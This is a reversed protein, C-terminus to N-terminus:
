DHCQLDANIGGKIVRLKHCRDRHRYTMTRSRCRPQCYFKRKHTSAFLNSCKPAKCQRLSNPPLNWICECALNILYPVRIGDLIIYNMPKTEVHNDFVNITIPPLWLKFRRLGILYELAPKLEQDFNDSLYPEELQSYVFQAAVPDGNFTNAYTCLMKLKSLHMRSM